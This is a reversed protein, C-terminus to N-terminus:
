TSLSTPLGGRLAYHTNGTTHSWCSHQSYIDRHLINGDFFLSAHGIFAAVFARGIDLPSLGPDLISIGTTGFVLRTFIRNHRNLFAPYVDTLGEESPLFRGRVQLINEMSNCAIFNPLGIVGGSNAM